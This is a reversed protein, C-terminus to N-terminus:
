YTGTELKNEEVLKILENFYLPEDECPKLTLGPTETNVSNPAELVTIQQIYKMLKSGKNLLALIEKHKNRPSSASAMNAFDM